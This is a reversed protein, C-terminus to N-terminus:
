DKANITTTELHRASGRVILYQALGYTFMIAMGAFSFQSHFKNIALLSDSLVFFAAGACFLLAAKKDLKGIQWLAFSLMTGIVVGYILVPIKMGGLTPWLIYMLEIIYALVALLMVPRSKLYSNRPSKTKAFYGIYLLHATLFSVLGGIFLSGDLEELMLLIDGLWSFFLGSLLIISFFGLPRAELFYALMLLPMLLPKTFYRLGPFFEISIIDLLAVLGFLIYIITHNKFM